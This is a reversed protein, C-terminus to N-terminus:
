GDWSIGQRWGGEQAIKAGKRLDLILLNKKISLAQLAGEYFEAAIIAEYFRQSMQDATKRGVECNM